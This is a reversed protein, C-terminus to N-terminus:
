EGGRFLKRLLGTTDNKKPSPTPNASQAVPSQTTGFYSGGPAPDGVAEARRRNFVALRDRLVGDGRQMLELEHQIEANLRKLEQEQRALMARERAMGVEMERMQKELSAEDERLQKRDGEMARREQAIQMSERELDDAWEELESKTKPKTNIITELEQIKAESEELKLDRSAVEDQMRQEQESADHLLQRMEEMLQELREVERRYNEADLRLQEIVPDPAPAQPLVPRPLRFSSRGTPRRLDPPTAHNAPIPTPEADVLASEHDAFADAFDDGRIAPALDPRAPPVLLRRAIPVPAPATAVAAPEVAPTGVPNSPATLRRRLEATTLRLSDSAM